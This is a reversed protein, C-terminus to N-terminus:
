VHARGIKGVKADAGGLEKFYKAPQPYTDPKPDEVSSVPFSSPPRFGLALANGGWAWKIILVQEPCDDGLVQGFGLEPGFRNSPVGYGVTLPGRKNAQHKTSSISWGKAGRDLGKMTFNIWVDKRPTWGDGTRLGKYTEATKPDAILEELHKIAGKGEMNSQGALIFVRVPGKKAKDQARTDAPVGALALLSFIVLGGTIRRTITRATTTSENKM